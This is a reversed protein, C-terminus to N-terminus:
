LVNEPNWGVNAVVRSRPSFFKVNKPKAAEMVWGIVFKVLSPSDFM